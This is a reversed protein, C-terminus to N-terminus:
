KAIVATGWPDCIPVFPVNQDNCYDTVAKKVGKYEDNNYDHIFIFGGRSLRPYFYQLGEYIPQYLDADLSVFAFVDELGELSDPFYGKKIVCNDPKIMKDLVLGANTDSFDQTGPSYSNAEEILVDRKSFGEFTDFLYLTKDPFAENMYKAFDGRYVGLEAVAGPVSNKRIEEAILELSSIRVYGLNVPVYFLRERGLAQMSEELVFKHENLYDDVLRREM